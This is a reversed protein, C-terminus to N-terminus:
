TSGNEVEKVSDAVGYGVLFNGITMSVYKVVLLWFIYKEDTLLNELPVPSFELGLGVAGISAGIKTLKNKRVKNVTEKKFLKNLIGM